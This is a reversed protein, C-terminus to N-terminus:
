KKKTKWTNRNSTKVWWNTPENTKTNVVLTEEIIEKQKFNKPDPLRPFLWNFVEETIWIEKLRENYQVKKSELATIDRFDNIYDVVIEGTDDYIAEERLWFFEWVIQKATRKWSMYNIIKQTDTNLGAINWLTTAM